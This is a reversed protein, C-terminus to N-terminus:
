DHHRPGDIVMGAILMWEALVARPRCTWLLAHPHGVMRVSTHLFRDFLCPHGGAVRVCVGTLHRLASPNFVPFLCVSSAIVGGGFLAVM